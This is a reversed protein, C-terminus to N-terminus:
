EAEVAQRDLQERAEAERKRREAEQKQYRRELDPQGRGQEALESRLAAQRRVEAGDRHRKAQEYEAEFQEDLRRVLDLNVGVTEFEQRFWSPQAKVAERVARHRLSVRDGARYETGTADKFDATVLVSEEVLRPQEPM